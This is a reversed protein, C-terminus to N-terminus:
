QKNEYDTYESHYHCPYEYEFCCKNDGIFTICKFEQPSTFIRLWQPEFCIKGENLSFVVNFSSMHTIPEIEIFSPFESPDLDIVRKFLEVEKTRKNNM